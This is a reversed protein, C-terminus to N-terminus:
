YRSGAGPNLCNCFNRSAPRVTGCTPYDSSNWNGIPQLTGTVSSSPTGTHSSSPTRTRSSSATSTMTSTSLATPTSTCTPTPSQTGCFSGTCVLCAGGSNVMGGVTRVTGRPSTPPLSLLKHLVYLVAVATVTLTSERTHKCRVLHTTTVLNSYRLRSVSTAEAACRRASHAPRSTTAVTASLVTTNPAVPQAISRAALADM